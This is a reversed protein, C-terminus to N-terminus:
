EAAIEVMRGDDLQLLIVGDRPEVADQFEHPTQVPERGVQRIFDGVNLGARAAPSNEEIATVVVARPYRSTLHAPMFRRRSTCYDVRLGRWAPYRLHPAIISSDDYVPWKGLRVAVESRNRTRPRWVSLQAETEPGLLGVRLMLDSNGLVPHGSVALICDGRQLGAQDAPSDEAVSVLVAASPPLPQGDADLVGALQIDDPRVGLFGYEVEHGDLLAKVIRRVDADLPIAFGASSEYGRLAALSTGLGVLKGQLDVIATGSTGLQLRLDVHLLAGYEFITGSEEGTENEAEGEVPRRSLNSVMGLSVSASGDRAIAYPNGLGVILQGKKLSEGAGLPMVPIQEATLGSGELDLKLVALDSREDQNYLTAAVVNRSALRVFFLAESHSNKKRLASGTVVHRPTLIFRANDGERSLIVGTAFERPIFGPDAPTVVSRFRFPNRQEPDRQVDEPLVRAIAVVAGETQAIAQILNQQFEGAIPLAADQGLVEPGQASWGMMAVFLWLMCRCILCPRSM